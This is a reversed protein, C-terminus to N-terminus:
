HIWLEKQVPTCGAPVSCLELILLSTVESVMAGSRGAGGTEQSARALRSKLRLRHGVSLVVSSPISGRGMLCPLPPLPGYGRLDCVGCVTLGEWPASLSFPSSCLSSAACVLCIEDKSGFGPVGAEPM